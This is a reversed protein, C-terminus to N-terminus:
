LECKMVEVSKWHIQEHVAFFIIYIFLVLRLLLCLKQLYEILM